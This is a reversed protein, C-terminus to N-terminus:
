PAVCRFNAADNISGQSVEPLAPPHNFVAGLRRWFM